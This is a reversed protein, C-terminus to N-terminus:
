HFFVLVFFVNRLFSKTSFNSIWHHVWHISCLNLFCSNDLFPLIEIPYISVLESSIAIVLFNSNWYSLMSFIISQVSYISSDVISACFTTWLILEKYL